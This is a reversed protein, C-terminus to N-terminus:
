KKNKHEKKEVPINPFKKNNVFRIESAEEDIFWTQKPWSWLEEFLENSETQTQQRFQASYTISPREKRWVTLSTLKGTPEWDFSIQYTNSM